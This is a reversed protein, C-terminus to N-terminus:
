DNKRDLLAIPITIIIAPIAVIFFLPHSEWTEKLEKIIQRLRM